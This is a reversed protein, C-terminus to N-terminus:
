PQQEVMVQQAEKFELRSETNVHFQRFIRQSQARAASITGASGAGTAGYAVTWKVIVAEEGQITFHDTSVEDIVRRMDQTRYTNDPITVLSTQSYQWLITNGAVLENARAAAAGQPCVIVAHNERDDSGTTTHLHHRSNLTISGAGPM